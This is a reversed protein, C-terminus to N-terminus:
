LLARLRRVLEVNQAHGTKRAHVAGRVPRGLLYLDGLIDLIKHRALEEPFRLETNVIGGEGILIFNGLQGGQGLGAAELARIEELSPITGTLALSLRRAIALDDARPAPQLDLSEWHRRFEADVQAAVAGIEIQQPGAPALRQPATTREGVLLNAALAGAGCVCVAVFVLNRWWM